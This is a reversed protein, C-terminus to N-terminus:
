AAKALAARLPLKVVFTSGRGPGDSEAELSGGHQSVILHSISLGLGTGKGTRSRTFFPEFLNELVDPTMGCGDDTVRIEVRDRLSKASLEVTGGDDVSELANVVLNLLVQKLEQANANCFVIEKPEFRITKGRARGLTEVMGLVERVLAGVDTETREPAGARSFNLLKETIAKCRFAEEEIMKLYNAAVETQASGTSLESQLRSQLAEACFAISALPNNIEHAVGAALFGVSALRESRILQRSREEVQRNLDRYVAQLKDAMDNFSEGLEQMEDGTDVRVRSDFQRAALKVVSRHLARIPHFIARYGLWVLVVLLAVVLVSTSYVIGMATKYNARDVDVNDRVSQHIHGSLRGSAGQVDRVYEGFKTDTRFFNLDRVRSSGGDGLEGKARKEANSLLSALLDLEFIQRSEDGVDIGEGVARELNLRYQRVCNDVNKLRNLQLDLPEAAEQADQTPPTRLDVIAITLNGLLELQGRHYEFTKNSQRYSHLGYFAGGSLMVTMGVVLLLGAGL